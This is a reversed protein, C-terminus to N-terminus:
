YTWSWYPCAMLSITTPSTHGSKGHFYASSTITTPPRPKNKASSLKPWDRTTKEPSLRLQTTQRSLNGITGLDLRLENSHSLYHSSTLKASLFYLNYYKLLLQNPLPLPITEGWLIHCLTMYICLLTDTTKESTCNLEILKQAWIWM